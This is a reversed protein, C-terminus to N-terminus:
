AAQLVLRSQSSQKKKPAATAKEFVLEFCIQTLQVSNTKSFSRSNNRMRPDGEAGTSYTRRWSSPRGVVALASSSSKSVRLFM